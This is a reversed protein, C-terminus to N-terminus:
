VSDAVMSLVRVWLRSRRSLDRGGRRASDEAAVDVPVIAQTSAM